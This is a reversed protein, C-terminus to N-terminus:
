SPYTIKHQDDRHTTGYFTSRQACFHSISSTTIAAAACSSSVFLNTAVLRIDDITEEVLVAAISLSSQKQQLKVIM